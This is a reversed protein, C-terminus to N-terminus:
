EIDNYNVIFEENKVIYDIIQSLRIFDHRILNFTDPCAYDYAECKDPVVFLNETALRVDSQHGKLKKMAFLKKLNNDSNLLNFYDGILELVEKSTFQSMFNYRVMITKVQALEGRDFTMVIGRDFTTFTM